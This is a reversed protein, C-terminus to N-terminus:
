PAAPFEDHTRGDITRGAAAKGIRRVTAGSPFRHHPGAGAVESVSVWEGNQKFFFPVGAAACDDRIKRPWDPHMPRAGDGSEGGAIVWDIKHDRWPGDSNRNGMAATQHYDEGTTLCNFTWGDARDDEEPVPIETLDIPGLLPELSVFRKAAPTDLLIPIRQDATAQDEASVGLWVHPWPWTGALTRGVLVPKDPKGSRERLIRKAFGEIYGMRDAAIYERMRAPRKTLIQFIHHEALAMVAFVRDIWEDPVNEHFLDGHACVFIRRPKRWRLPQDLWQQNFRVEGTFKATGDAAIRALGKRSPHDKLRTAALRAAYCNRCGESVLTCGTVPNWTADTWEIKTKDAM